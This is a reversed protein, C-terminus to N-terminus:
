IIDFLCFAGENLNHSTVHIPSTMVVNSFRVFAHSSWEGGVTKYNNKFISITDLCISKIDLFFQSLKKGFISKADLFISM